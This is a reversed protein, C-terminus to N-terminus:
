CWSSRRYGGRYAATEQPLANEHTWLDGPQTTTFQCNPCAYPRLNIGEDMIVTASRVVTRRFVAAGLFSPFLLFFFLGLLDTSVKVVSQDRTRNEGGGCSIKILNVHGHSTWTIHTWASNMYLEHLTRGHLTWTFNMNLEHLTRGHLTWTFNM